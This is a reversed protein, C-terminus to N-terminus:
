KVTDKKTGEEARSSNVNVLERLSLPLKRTFLELALLGKGVGWTV